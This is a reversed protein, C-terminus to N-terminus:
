YQTYNNAKTCTVTVNGSALTITTGTNNEFRFGIGNAATVYGFLKVGQLNQSYGCEVTDGLAAGTLTGTGGASSGNTIAGPATAFSASFAPTLVSNTGLINLAGSVNGTCTNGSIFVGFVSSSYDAYGYTQTHTSQTDILNNGSVVSYNGNVTGSTYRLTIGNGSTQGNNICTNGQVVSNQGGIAIGDGANSSCTNGIVKSRPAWMEIGLCVTSNVDTGTGGACTNNVIELDSCNSNQEITIGAGFKWNYVQNDRITTYQCSLDMGTNSHYNAEILGNSCSGSATSVLIGQNQTNASATRLFQNNRFIFRNGGNHSIAFTFNGTFVCNEITYNNNLSFNLMGDPFSTAASMDFTIGYIKFNSISSGNVLGGTSYSAAQAKITVTGNEAAIWDISSKKTIGTTDVIYTGAPFVLPSIGANEAAQIAATDDTTGNGTAGFQKVSVGSIIQLHWRGGDSAVIISGGNDSSTTDSAFYIYVGGGGDNATTYGTVFVNGNATKSVARLATISSVVTFTGLNGAAAIATSANTGGGAISLLGSGSLSTNIMRWTTTAAYYRFKLSAGIVPISTPSGAQVSGTASNITLTTILQSFSIEVSHGDALPTPLTITLTALTGAPDITQLNTEQAIAVTAGTTPTAVATGSNLYVGKLYENQFHLSSSGLNVTADTTPNISTSANVSTFNGQSPTEIGLGGTFSASGTVQLTDVGNDTTTGLLLAGRNNFRGVESNVISATPTTSFTLATPMSTNSFTGESVVKYLGTSSTQFSTAGYGHGSFSALVDGSQLALPAAATGRASRTQFTGVPGVSSSGSYSDLVARVPSNGALQLITGSFPSIINSGTENLTLLGTMAFSGAYGGTVDSGLVYIGTAGDAFIERTYGQAVTVTATGNTMALTISYAGTTNNFVSWIKVKEPFTITINGTLVGTLIITGANAQSTSLIVINSSGSVNVTNVELPSVIDSFNPM